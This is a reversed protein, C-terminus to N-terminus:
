GNAKTLEELLSHYQLLDVLHNNKITTRKNIEIILKNIELLKIKTTQDKVRNIEKNLISKISNIEKNYFEKLVPGNDASNIFEKLIIKQKPNLNDYKTNFNELMVHYTLTRLDKDYSKFEELVVDKIKVKNIEQNSISELITIKSDVIQNSNTPKSTNYIEILTYFSAQSKYDSLKTKFLDEVDYHSKLEKILNYKESKLKSRNLKKSQELVTNLIISAKQETLRKDQFLTEYLKYEKGLETNVFYEKIIKIAPSNIGSLTDGTIKKVLIEFLIDTNKFKSHKIYM